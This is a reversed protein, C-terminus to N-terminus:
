VQMRMIEQYGTIIKNRVQIALSMATSSKEMAMMVQHLEIPGGVAYTQVAQTSENSLRNLENMQDKLMSGFQNLIQGSSDQQQGSQKKQGVLPSDLQTLMLDKGLNNNITDV